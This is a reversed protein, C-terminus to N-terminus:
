YTLCHEYHASPYSGGKLFTKTIVGKESDWVEFKGTYGPTGIVKQPLCFKSIILQKFFTLLYFYM